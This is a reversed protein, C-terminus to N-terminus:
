IQTKKTEIAPDVEEVMLDQAMAHADVLLLHVKKIALAVEQPAVIACLSKAHCEPM